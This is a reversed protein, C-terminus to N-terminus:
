DHGPNTRLTGDPFITDCFLASEDWAGEDDAGCMNADTLDVGTMNAGRLNAGTLDVGKLKAGLFNTGSLDSDM